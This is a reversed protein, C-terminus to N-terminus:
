ERCVSRAESGFRGLFSQATVQVLCGQGVWAAVDDLRRHLLFNREPHTVIPTIGRDLMRSFDERTTPPITMDSFEVLLYRRQNVTYKAPNALADQIHVSYLFLDCGLHLRPVPGAADQLESLKRRALEPDFRYKLNAHPTAVLDTTGAAAAVALMRVSEELSSAGDDLGPLVHTHIDIM